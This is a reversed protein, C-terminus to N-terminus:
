FVMYGICQGYGMNKYDKLYLVRLLYSTRDSVEYM